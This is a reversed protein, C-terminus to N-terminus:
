KKPSAKGYSIVYTGLTRTKLEFTNEDANYTVQSTINTLTGKSSVSYIYIKSISYDEDFPNTLSLTARSIADVTAPSFKRIVADNNYFQNSLATTWKTSLKAVFKSPNSSAKFSLRALEESASEFFIENQENAYPRITMGSAGVVVSSDGSGEPNGVYFVARLTLRDGTAQMPKTMFPAQILPTGNMNFPAGSLFSYGATNSKRVTFTVNLEVKYEETGNTDNLTVALYKNRGNAAIRGTQDVAGSTLKTPVTYYGSVNMRKDVVKVSSVLKANQQKKVSVRFNTENSLVNGAQEPLLFYITQGPAITDGISNYQKGQEDIPAGTLTQIEHTEDVAAFTPLSVSVVSIAAVLLASLFKKM